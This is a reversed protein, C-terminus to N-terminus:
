KRIMASLLHWRVFNHPSDFSTVTTFMYTPVGRLNETDPLTSLVECINGLISSLIVKEIWMNCLLFRVIVSTM